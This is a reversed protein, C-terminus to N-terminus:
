SRSAANEPDPAQLVPVAGATGRGLSSGAPLEEWAIEDVAEDKENYLIVANRAGALTNSKAWAADAEVAGAYGEANALLLHGGPPVYKGNLRSAPVLPAENGTRTRKRLSWGTLDFPTDNPNYLEVFEDTAAGAGGGAFVESIFPPVQAAVPLGALAVEDSAAEDERIAEEALFRPTTLFARDFAAAFSALFHSPAPLIEGAGKTAFFIGTGGLLCLGAVLAAGRRWVPRREEKPGRESPLGEMGKIIALASM